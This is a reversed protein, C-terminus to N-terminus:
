QKTENIRPLTRTLQIRTRLLVGHTLEILPTCRAHLISLSEGKQSRPRPADHSVCPWRGGRAHLELARNVDHIANFVALWRMAQWTVARSENQGELGPHKSTNNEGATLTSRPRCSADTSEIRKQPTIHRSSNFTLVQNGDQKKM